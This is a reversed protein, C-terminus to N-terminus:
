FDFDVDSEFDFDFDSGFDAGFDSDFDSGFDFIVILHAKALRTIGPRFM